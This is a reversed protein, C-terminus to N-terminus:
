FPKVGKRVLSTLFEYVEHEFLKSRKKSKLRLLPETIINLTKSSIKRQLECILVRSGLDEPERIPSEYMVCTKVAPSSILRNLVESRFSREFEDSPEYVAFLLPLNSLEKKRGKFVEKLNCWYREAKIGAYRGWRAKTDARVSNMEPSSRGELLGNWSKFEYISLYRLGERKALFRRASIINPVKMLDPLHVWDYWRNLEEELGQDSLELRVIYLPLM